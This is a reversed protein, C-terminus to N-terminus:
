ITTKSKTSPRDDDLLPKPDIFEEISSNIKVNSKRKVKIESDQIIKDFLDASSDEM